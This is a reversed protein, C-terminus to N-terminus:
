MCTCPRTRCRATPRIGSPRAPRPSSRTPADGVGIDIELQDGGVVGGPPHVIIAQCVKADEPYLAKQVRLPGHHIKNFLRTTGADDAFGLHSQGALVIATSAAFDRPATCDPM